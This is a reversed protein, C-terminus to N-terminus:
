KNTDVIINDILRTAGIKVAMAVLAKSTINDIDELTEIDVISIYEVNINPSKGLVGRMADTLKSCDSVGEGVMGECKGLAAYILAAEKKESESLYQNRSSIALGSEERMTPCVKIELPMNLDKVMRKIVIAQQVDKQGFFATDPCVINFLKACVTTVGKFHGPRFKGCLNNTLGEVEVWTIIKDPYMENVDPAFIIDAGAQECIKADGELDRPYKDLDENPGFQTPNVFISVVVVDCKKIATEILSVHGKHLAGMTPVFGISKGEARGKQVASRLLDITKVIDM